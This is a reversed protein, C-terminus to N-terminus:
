SRRRLVGFVSQVGAHLSKHRKAFQVDGRVALCGTICHEQEGLSGVDLNIDERDRM